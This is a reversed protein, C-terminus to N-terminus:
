KAGFVQRELPKIDVYSWSNILRIRLLSTKIVNGQALCGTSHKFIELYKPYITLPM